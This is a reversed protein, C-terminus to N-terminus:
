KGATEPFREAYREERVYKVSVLNGRFWQAHFIDFAAKADSYETFMLYVSPDNQQHNIAFHSPRAPHLMSYVERRIEGDYEPREDVLGRMKLCRTLAKSPTNSARPSIREVPGQWGGIADSAANVWIWVNCEVGKILRSESRIRSDMNNIFQVAALWLELDQATRRTPPLLNDRLHQEAIGSDGASRVRDAIRDVLEMTRREQAERIVKRKKYAFFTIFAAAVFLALMLTPFIAYNYIFNATDAVSTSILRQTRAVTKQHATFVYALLLVVTFSGFIILLWKPIESSASPSPQRVRFAPSIRGGPTGYKGRDSSHRVYPFNSAKDQIYNYASSGYRKLKDIPSEDGPQRRSRGGSSMNRRESPTLIRSSEVSEDYEDTVDFQHQRRTNPRRNITFDRNASLTPRPPTPTRKFTSKQAPTIDLQQENDSQEAATIVVPSPIGRSNSKRSSTSATSTRSNSRRPSPSKKPSERPPPTFSTANSLNFGSHADDVSPPTELVRRPRGPSRGTRKPQSKPTAPSRISATSSNGRLKILKKEMVSRTSTSVPGSNFGLANLEDRLEENSLQRPDTM